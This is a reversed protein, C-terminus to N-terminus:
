EGVSLLNIIDKETLSALSESDNKGEILNESLIKKKEQLEIIKEEITGKTILKVVSVNKTQGIRHARDTAQNEVQPNWWIDLHIVTDAGVLNLGTGGSKLTILFCDTDDENFREVMSMRDKSKVSGDIMYYSINNKTFERSVNELVRKFSSFILIKHNNEISENVIRLLEEIKISEGDYNEYMVNPDICIQRLKTLLQLIKMRSKQFGGSKIMEDMERKTDNLVKLYLKKQKDPLDIYIKNEIKEPLSKIVDEKKRRLIFPTIQYNLLKLTKLGEEDVDRINYKERFKIVNNLYGPMIFDFISWLEMINNEVPTGTLAIKCTAKIKKIEKTMQAQYNKINQAEDVVCLEFNINEYEDKDNKILGYSTIFINYNDRKSFIELRRQKNNAVVVYKLNPAFKLFEKEWNYILSTPVVIIIKSDPKEKLIEKIFMITQISKGLGMEDALIGGLGCKYITKLWRVGDKQYDRLIKDDNKELDINLDKYKKFNSIFEDFLSNTKINKYKNKKLSDIYLARYKPIVVDGSNIDDKTLNLESVITNLENLEESNSLDVVNNNKLKYYRKKQKLAVFLDNLDDKNIGDANFNYSMIGDKGISFNSTTTVKKLVKTNDIKKSTFVEYEESLTTLIEDIFYYMKDDDDIIFKNKDEIFGYDLIQKEVEKEYDNDRLFDSEEFSDIEKDKYVFVINCILKSYSIDFYLKVNPKEPIAIESIEDSIVMNSKMNNFLGNNFLVLDEKSFVLEKIKNEYLLSLYEAEDNRMIYLNHNYLIYQNDLLKYNDFDEISVVYNNDNRNLLYKTPLGDYVNSIKGYNTINFEHNKLLKVIERFERKTLNLYGGYYYENSSIFCERLYDLLEEDSKSFYHVSPNYTLSKGFTYEKKEYYANLFNNLKSITNLKYKKDNGISVRLTIGYDFLFELELELKEKITKSTNGKFRSLILKSVAVEDIIEYEEFKYMDEIMVAAVHKCTHALEFQPCDCSFNYIKSGNNEIIVNYFKNSNQSKVSYIHEFYTTKKNIEKNKIFSIPYMRGKFFSDRGLLNIIYSYNM